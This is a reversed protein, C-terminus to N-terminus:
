KRLSDYRKKMKDIRNYVENQIESPSLVLLADGFSSLERILEYNKRCPLKFFAGGSLESYQMRLEKDQKIYIQEEHLPKTIVYGKTEDDVWFYIPLVENEEFFTVGIIESFRDNLDGEYPKYAYDPLIKFDNIRDFPFTLIHDTDVAGAILYWRRNYEKILYPYVKVSKIDSIKKYTHYQIEITCENIISKYLRGLITLSEAPNKQISIITQPIDLNMGKIFKDLGEFEPLGDFQGLLGLVQSLLYRENNTLQKKFISFSPDKYYMGKGMYPDKGDGPKVKVKAYELEIAWPSENKLFDLDLQLTRIDVSKQGMEVLRENLCEWLQKTTLPKYRNQLLEDIIYYRLLANKTKPM